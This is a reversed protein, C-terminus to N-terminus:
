EPSLGTWKPKIVGPISSASATGGDAKHPRSCDTCQAHKGGQNM